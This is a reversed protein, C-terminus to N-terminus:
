ARRSPAIAGTADGPGSRRPRRGEEAGRRAAAADRTLRRVEASTDQQLHDIASRVGVADFPASLARALEGRTRDDPSTAWSSVLLTRDLSPLLCLLIGLPSIGSSGPAGTWSLLDIEDDNTLVPRAVAARAALTRWQASEIGDSVVRQLDLAWGTAERPDEDWVHFGAGRISRGSAGDVIPDAELPEAAVRPDAMVPAPGVLLGLMATRLWSWRGVAM